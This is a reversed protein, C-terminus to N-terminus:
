NCVTELIERYTRECNNCDYLEFFKKINSDYKYTNRKSNIYIDLMERLLEDENSVVAGFGDREYEFYGKPYHREYYEDNDFQYYIIPKKMYAFDFAISSYDTILLESEKLLEQVDYKTEDAIIIKRSNSFFLDKYRQIEHHPHFILTIGNRELFNNLDNNELFSNIKKFYDSKIFKERNSNIDKIGEEMGFSQRWTLMMFIQRKTKFHHLNDFRCLGLYKVAEKPYGLEKKVFDYEPKAGCIIREFGTNSYMHSPIKEKIIGHKIYIRNKVLIKKSQLWWFIPSSPVCSGQHACILKKSLIYYIYHKLSDYYIINGLKSIKKLDSSNRSIVYFINEEPYKERVYKFLHYGNDKAENKREGVLLIKKNKNFITMFKAIVLCIAFKIFHISYILYKM